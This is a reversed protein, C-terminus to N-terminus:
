KTILKNVLEKLEEIQKQQEKIAEILLPTLRGYDLTKYGQGIPADKILEPLIAEVEQASVGVEMKKKYGLEQAKQNAEYYFGNLSLVKELANEINGKRDKLRDDSYYAVIDGAVRISDGTNSGDFYYATNNRDYYTYFQADAGYVNYATGTPNGAYFINSSYLTGYYASLSPSGYSNVAQAITTNSNSGGQITIKSLFNASTTSSAPDVWYASDNADYYITGYFRGDSALYKSNVWTDEIIVQRTWNINNANGGGVRLAAASYDMAIFGHTDSGSWSLMTGYSGLGGLPAPTTNWRAASIQYGNATTGFLTSRFNATTLTDILAPAALKNVMLGTINTISSVTGSNGTINGSITNTVTLGVLNSTSTPDCFYGTNNSDYMIPVYLGGSNLSGLTTYSLTRGAAGAGAGLFSFGGATFLLYTSTDTGPAIWNGGTTTHRVNYGIGGYSGGSYGAVLGRGESGGSGLNVNYTGVNTDFFNVAGIQTTTTNGRGTVTLLTDTESYSTLFSSAHLGDLTDANGASTAYSVSQSGINGSHIIANGNVVLNGNGDGSNLVLNGGTARQNWSRVGNEDFRLYNGSLQVDNGFSVSGGGSYITPTVLYYTANVIYLNSTGNPNLYYATNDNDYFIPSYTATNARQYDANQNSVYNVLPTGVQASATQPSNYITWGNTELQWTDNNWATEFFQLQYTRNNTTSTTLVVRIKSRYNTYNTSGLITCGVNVYHSQNNTDFDCEARAVVAIQYSDAGNYRHDNLTGYLVAGSCNSTLTVQAATYWGESGGSYLDSRGSITRYYSDRVYKGNNQIFEGTTQYTGTGSTKATLSDFTHTHSSSAYLGAHNGWSYATNWNASNDTFPLVYYNANTAGTYGLDGLTMTRTTINTVSGIADSTFIDIVQAGSTDISRTTYAPHTYVTNTDVWPVNVVAQGAANLQLGYTRSATTSVTNAAVTQVTDSFLEIGGLVTSTATPLTYSAGGTSSIVGGSITINTGATIVSGDAALIQASTGGSKIFSTATINHINSMAAPDLYYATNNSDSFTPAKIVNDFIVEKNPYWKIVTDNYGVGLYGYTYTNASGYAGIQYLSTGTYEQFNLLARAWGGSPYNPKRVVVNDGDLITTAWSGNIQLTGTMTDGTVNVFRSDSETETYYRDDHNHVSNAPTYGLWGAITKNVWLNGNFGLLHGSVPTLSKVDVDHLEDLEFGNQVKVFIEGNNVNVRTVIGIFVLHAPAYPKNALGYILNGGTGLWVPDGAVATSTDLGALLGEAIVNAFGNIAVTSALLGMTKSSTAETANSALSVIMNTGDASSVYVAQGKNIAVGAKVQHQINSAVGPAVGLDSLMEAGTRFKIIGGDSVLFKDTDTTAANLAQLEVESKFKQSM